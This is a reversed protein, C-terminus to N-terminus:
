RKGLRVAFFGDTSHTHPYTFFYGESNMLGRFTSRFSESLSIDRVVNIIYFDRNNHLFREVVHVTEEPETTCVSYVLLGGSRLLRASETLIRLQKQGFDVIAQPSHRFKIDPNRRIVGLASCPADVLIRDFTTETSYTGVDAECIEVCQANQARVNERLLRLRVPDPDLAIIRARNGTLQALHTSKGGPAACADLIVDGQQPNVLHGILQAAEDQVYIKGGLHSIAPYHADHLVIGEPSYKSLTYRINSDTLAKSVEEASSLLTNVRVSLPPIRNNAEAIALVEPLSFRKAWKEVLWLPHSTEISIHVLPHQTFSPITLARQRRHYSRLVGNVLGPMG